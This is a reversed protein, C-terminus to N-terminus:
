FVTKNESAPKSLSDQHRISNSKYSALLGLDFKCLYGRHERTILKEKTVRGMETSAVTVDKSLVRM